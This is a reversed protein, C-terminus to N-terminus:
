TYTKLFESQLTIIIISPGTDSIASVGIILDEGATPFTADKGESWRGVLFNHIYFSTIDEFEKWLNKLKM